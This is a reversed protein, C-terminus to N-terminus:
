LVQSFHGLEWLKCCRLVIAKIKIAILVTHIIRTYCKNQFKRGYFYICKFQQQKGTAQTRVQEEELLGRFEWTLLYYVGVGAHLGQPLPHFVTHEVRLRQLHIPEALGVYTRM